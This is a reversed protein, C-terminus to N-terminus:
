ARRGELTSLRHEHDEVRDKLDLREALLTKVEGVAKAVAVIETVLRIETESQRRELAGLREVTTDLREVTTGLREVTTDLRRNTAKQAELIQRLVRVTPSEKDAV